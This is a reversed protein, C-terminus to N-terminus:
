TRRAITSTSNAVRSRSLLFDSATHLPWRRPLIKTLCSPSTDFSMWRRVVTTLGKSRPQLNQAGDSISASQERWESQNGVNWSTRFFRKDPQHHRGHTFRISAAAAAAAAETPLFASCPISRIRVAQRRNRSCRSQFNCM